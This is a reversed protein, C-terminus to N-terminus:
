FHFRYVQASCKKRLRLWKMWHFEIFKVIKYAVMTQILEETEQEHRLKIENLRKNKIINKFFQQIIKAHRNIMFWQVDQMFIYRRVLYGRFLSQIRIAYADRKAFFLNLTTNM